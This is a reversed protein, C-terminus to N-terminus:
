RHRGDSLYTTMIVNLHRHLPVLPALRLIPSMIEQIPSLSFSMIFLYDRLRGSRHLYALLFESYDVFAQSSVDKGGCCREDEGAYM